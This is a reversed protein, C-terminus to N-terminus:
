QIAREAMRDREYGQAFVSAQNLGGVQRGSLAFRVHPDMRCLRVVRLRLLTLTTSKCSSSRLRRFDDDVNKYM